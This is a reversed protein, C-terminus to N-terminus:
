EQWYASDVKWAQNEKVFTILIEQNFLESANNTTGVAERRRTEVIIEARGKSDDFNKVKTSLAKTTIGYYLENVANSKRNKDVYADAWSQMNDSMVMKLDLINSFNSQNSFSGFREAFSRAMRELDAQGFPMSAKKEITSNEIADLENKDPIDKSSSATQSADIKKNEVLSIPQENVSFFFIYYVIAAILFFVLIIIILLGKKKSM